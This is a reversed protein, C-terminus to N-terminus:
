VAMAAKSNKPFCVRNGPIYFPNQILRQGLAIWSIVLAVVLLITAQSRLTVDKRGFIRRRECALLIAVDRKLTDGM